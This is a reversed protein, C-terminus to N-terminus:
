LSYFKKGDFMKFPERLRDSRSIKKKKIPKGDGHLDFIHEKKLNQKPKGNAFNPVYFFENPIEDDINRSNINAKTYHVVAKVRDIQMKKQITKYFEKDSNNM